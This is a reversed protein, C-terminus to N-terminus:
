ATRTPKCSFGINGSITSIKPANSVRLKKAGADVAMAVIV